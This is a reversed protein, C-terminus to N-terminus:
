NVQRRKLNKFNEDLRLGIATRLKWLTVPDLGQINVKEDYENLVQTFDGGQNLRKIVLRKIDSRMMGDVNELINLYEVDQQGRRFAKLRISPLPGPKGITEGPYLLANQDADTWSRQKGLTQWPVIGDLGNVWTELSWAVPHLNNLEIPNASGYNYTTEGTRSKRDLVYRLYRRYSNSIM